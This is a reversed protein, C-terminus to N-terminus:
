SATSRSPRIGASAARSMPKKREIRTSASPRSFNVTGLSTACAATPVRAKVIKRPSRSVTSYSATASVTSIRNAVTGCATM